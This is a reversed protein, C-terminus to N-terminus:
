FHFDINYYAYDMMDSGSLLDHIGTRAWPQGSYDEQYYLLELSEYRVVAGIGLSRTPIFCGWLCYRFSLCWAFNIPLTVLLLICGIRRRWPKFFEGMADERFVFVGRHIRISM